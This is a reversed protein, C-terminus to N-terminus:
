TAAAASSTAAVSSAAASATKTPAASSAAASQTPPMWLSTTSKTGTAAATASSKPPETFVPPAEGVDIAVTESELSEGGENKAKVWCYAQGQQMGAVAIARTYGQDVANWYLKNNQECYGIYGNIASNGDFVPPKYSITVIGSAQSLGSLIPPDPPVYNTVESNLYGGTKTNFTIKPSSYGVTTIRSYVGGNYLKSGSPIPFYTQVGTWQGNGDKQWVLRVTNAVLGKTAASNATIGSQQTFFSEPIWATFEGSTNKGDVANHPNALRVAWFSGGDGLRIPSLPLRPM